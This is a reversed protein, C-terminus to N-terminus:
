NNRWIVREEMIKLEFEPIIERDAGLTKYEEFTIEKPEQFKFSRHWDAMPICYHSGKEGCFVVSLPYKPTPPNNAVAIVQFSEGKKNAWRQGPQPDMPAKSKVAMNILKKEIRM